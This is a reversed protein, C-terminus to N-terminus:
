RRWRPPIWVKSQERCSVDAQEQWQPQVQLEGANGSQEHDAGPERQLQKVGREAGYICSHGPPCVERSEDEPDTKRQSGPAQAEQTVLRSWRNPSFM